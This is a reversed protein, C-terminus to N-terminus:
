PTTAFEWHRAGRDVIAPLDDAVLFRERVLAQAADTFRALYEDRSRHRALVDAKSWAIYSGLFSARYAPFGTPAARLNWGTYTAL